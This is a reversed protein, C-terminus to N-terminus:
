GTPALRGIGLNRLARGARAAARPATLGHRVRPLPQPEDLFSLLAPLFERVAERHPYHGARAFRHVSIGDVTRLAAEAHAVPIVNDREGWFVRLPPLREM